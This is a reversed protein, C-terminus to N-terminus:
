FCCLFIFYFLLLMGNLRSRNRIENESTLRFGNLVSWLCDGKECIIQLMSEPLICCICLIFWINVKYTVLALWPFIFILIWPGRMKVSLIKKFVRPCVLVAAWRVTFYSVVSLHSWFITILFWNKTPKKAHFGHQSIFMILELKKNRVSGGM